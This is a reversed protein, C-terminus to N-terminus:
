DHNKQPNEDAIGLFLFCFIICSFFIIANKLVGNGAFYLSLWVITTVSLVTLLLLFYVSEENKAKSVTQKQISKELPQKINM